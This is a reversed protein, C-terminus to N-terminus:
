PKVERFQRTKAHRLAGEASTLALRVRTIARPAGAERLRDRAIRLHGIALEISAVAYDGAVVHENTM